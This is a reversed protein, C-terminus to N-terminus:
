LINKGNDNILFIACKCLRKKFPEIQKLSIYFINGRMEPVVTVNMTFFPVESLITQWKMLCNRYNLLERIDGETLPLNFRTIDTFTEYCCQKYSLVEDDLKWIRCKLTISDYKSSSLSRLAKSIQLIELYTVHEGMLVENEGVQKSLGNDSSIELELVMRRRSRSSQQLFFEFNYLEDTQTPIMVFRWKGDDNEKIDLTPSELKLGNADRFRYNKITWIFVFGGDDREVNIFSM